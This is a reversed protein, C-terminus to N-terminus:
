MYIREYFAVVAIVPISVLTTMGIFIGVFPNRALWCGATFGAVALLLLWESMSLSELVSTEYFYRGRYHENVNETTYGITLQVPKENDCSFYM